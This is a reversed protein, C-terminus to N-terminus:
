RARMGPTAPRDGIIEGLNESNVWGPHVAVGEANMDKAPVARRGRCSLRSQEIEYPATHVVHLYKANKFFHKRQFLAAMGTIRGHGIILDPPPLSPRNMLSTRLSQGPLPMAQLLNVRALRAEEIDKDDAEGVLCYVEAGRRALAICLQRNFTSIGGRASSWHTDVALVRIVPVGGLADTM